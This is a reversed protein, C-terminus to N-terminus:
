YSICAANLLGLAIRHSRQRVSMGILIGAIGSRISHPL